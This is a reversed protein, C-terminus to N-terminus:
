SQLESTHEESRVAELLLDGTQPEVADRIALPEVSARRGRRQRDLTKRRPRDGLGQASLRDRRPVAIEVRLAQDLPEAQGFGAADDPNPEGVVVRLALDVADDARQRPDRLSRRDRSTANTFRSTATTPPPITPLAVAANRASAPARTVSNSAASCA